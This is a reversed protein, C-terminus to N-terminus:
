PQTFRVRLFRSAELPATAAERVTVQESGNGLDTIITEVLAPTTFWNALDSGCEGLTTIDTRGTPRTFRFQLRGEGNLQAAPLVSPTTPSTGLGYELFNGLGDGDADATDAANGANATTGFNDSRWQELPTRTTASAINSDSSDGAANTAVVRFEYIL